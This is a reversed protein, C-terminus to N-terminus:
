SIEIGKDTEKTELTKFFIDFAQNIIEREKGEPYPRAVYGDIM